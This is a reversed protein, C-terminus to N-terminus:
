LSLLNEEPRKNNKSLIITKECLCVNEEKRIPDVILMGFTSIVPKFTM